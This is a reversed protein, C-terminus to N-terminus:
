FMLQRKSEKLVESCSPKHVEFLFPTVECGNLYSKTPAIIGSIYNNRLDRDDCRNSDIM